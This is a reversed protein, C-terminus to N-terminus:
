RRRGRGRRRVGGLIRRFFAGIQRRLFLFVLAALILALAFYAIPLADTMAATSTTVIAGTMDSWTPLTPFLTLTPM